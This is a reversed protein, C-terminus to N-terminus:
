LATCLKLSLLDQQIRGRMTEIVKDGALKIDYLQKNIIEKTNDDFESKGIQAVVEEFMQGAAARRYMNASHKFSHVGM